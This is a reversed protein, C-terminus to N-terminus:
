AIDDGPELYQLYESNAAITALHDLARGVALLLVAGVVAGVAFYANLEFEFSGPQSGVLKAVYVAASCFSLVAFLYLAKSIMEEAWTSREAM